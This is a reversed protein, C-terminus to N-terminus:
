DLALPERESLLVIGANRVQRRFASVEVAYLHNFDALVDQALSEAEKMYAIQAPTPADWSSTLSRLVYRVRSFPIQSSDVIGKTDPSVWLRKETAALEDDIEGAADLLDQHPHDDNRRDDADRPRAEIRGSRSDPPSGGNEAEARAVILAIDGRTEHIRVVAESVTEQLRGAQLIADWKAQRDIRSIETRPDPLVRLDSEAQHDEYRVRVGYLGPLVEPGRPESRREEYGPPAKFADRRLDWAIRNVGLTVPAEFTRLLEGDAARVQIEAQPAEEGEKRVKEEAVEPRPLGEVNLSFTVLAGYPRNEGRFEEHGPSWSGRPQKVSHQRAEPIQFLHIPQALINESMDRLPRIDDLIYVARGHTGLILDHERPHVALDMVSVTPVGHNWRLWSEGGDLSVWLGFETGLYLLRPDVPDQEIVLCYGSLDRTALKKWSGGFDDTRYVYPTWDSRRHNDLVVFATGADFRSPAIHPIWTDAPVGKLGNEVSTWTGGGDRTVHLRGDDTGVWIMGKEVPSPAVAVISTFNEAGTVDPTLGGSQDQKQWEPNDTTLDDSIIQWSEGRDTSRHVFQSGYYVTDPDFPDLALGANWNFRLRIGEPAPPRIDKKEGTRLNWRRLYGRQSMSFGILTDEPHPITDFGDGFGLEEWHYNRIGGNEWVSSPGRWSGNDQLGGYVNYPTENDARIHYYQALPLNAVFRWTEGRDTSFAIGGDNGLILRSGDEPHIWLAHHDVHISRRPVLLRFSAGGDDSVSVQTWLSYVRDPWEPDVRIDGFYFPRNGLNKGSGAKRWKRGGDRSVYLANEEAEVLAYVIRPHSPSIAVGIRGLDGEPFGDDATIRRWTAGGDHSVHLGSGPGGSRFSWPWRRYDWMAAFLKRPNGPDIVLDAAGTRRDVYLVRKWSRGGDITKYVGRERNEGWMQGMAAVWATDPDSPHLVIRHVRETKELGLHTWTQGGDLSRYVGNGVSASNRPNGEGTGVWVIEPSPQFIAVAGVAAVPQDDFVPEWSLGGNISKWVGGTAAGVYVIDPNAVVAEVAAVRGSMGAPGISRAKMGSLLEPDIDARAGSLSAACVLLASGVLALRRKM